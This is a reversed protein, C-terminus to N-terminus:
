LEKVKQALVMQGMPMLGLYSNTWKYQIVGFGCKELLNKLTRKTFFRIHPTEPDFYSDFLLASIIVRKLWSLEVTSIALYGGNKLVRNFEQLAKRVDLIHELTEFSLVTDFTNKEFPLDTVSAQIFSIKKENLGEARKESKRIINEAIDIGVINEINPLRCLYFTLEGAGCGGDLVKGRLAIKYFDMVRQRESDEHWTPVHEFITQGINNQDWYRDYFEVDQSQTFGKKM